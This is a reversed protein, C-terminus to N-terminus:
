FEEKRQEYYRELKLPSVIAAKGVNKEELAGVIIQQRAENKYQEFSKGQAQLTKIFETRDGFQEKVRSRVYDEVLPEPLHFGSAVFDNAIMERAVLQRLSNTYVEYIKQRLEPKGYYQRKVLDVAPAANMEVQYKTIVKSNVIAWIGNDMQQAAVPALGVLLIFLLFWHLRHRRTMRRLTYCPHPLHFRSKRPPFIAAAFHCPLM